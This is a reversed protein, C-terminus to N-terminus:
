KGPESNVPEKTFVKRTSGFDEFRVKGSSGLSQLVAELREKPWGTRFRLADQTIGGPVERVQEIIRTEDSTPSRKRMIVTETKEFNSPYAGRGPGRFLFLSSGLMGFLAIAISSTSAVFRGELPIGNEASGLTPFLMSISIVYAAVGVLGLILLRSMLRNQNLDM